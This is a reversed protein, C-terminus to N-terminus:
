AMFTYLMIGNCYRFLVYIENTLNLFYKKMSNKNGELFTSNMLHINNKIQKQCIIQIENRDDDTLQNRSTYCTRIYILELTINLKTHDCEKLYKMYSKALDLRKERSCTDIILGNVNKENIYGRNISLVSKKLASWDVKTSDTKTVYETIIRKQEYSALRGKIKFPANIEDPFIPSVVSLLRQTNCISVPYVKILLNWSFQKKLFLLCM